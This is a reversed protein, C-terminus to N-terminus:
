KIMCYKYLNSSFFSSPDIKEKEFPSFTRKLFKLYDLNVPKNKQEVFLEGLASALKKKVRHKIVIAKPLDCSVDSFYNLLVRRAVSYNEETQFVSKLSGLCKDIASTAEDVASNVGIKGSGELLMLGDFSLKYVPIPIPAGSVDTAWKKFVLSKEILNQLIVGVETAPVKGKLRDHIESESVGDGNEQSIVNLLFARKNKLTEM